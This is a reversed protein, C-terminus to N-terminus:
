DFSFGLHPFDAQLQKIREELRSLFVQYADSDPNLPIHSRDKQIKEVRAMIDRTAKNFYTEAFRQWVYAIGPKGPHILDEDYFRYDRLDDMFIEYAPFYSVQEFENSLESAALVLTSKSIQNGNAGDKWYRVPSVTLVVQIGPNLNLIEKFLRSYLRVIDGIRLLDYQFENAPLKHCNSVIRGSKVHHYVRATGFTIYLAKASLLSSRSNDLKQNIHSTVALPDVGSFRSHHDFSHWLGDRFFLDDVSYPQGNILRQIGGGISVPNFLVGFPNLDIKFLRNKLNEGIHEAFCSGMMLIKDPYSINWSPPDPVVTTRFNSM